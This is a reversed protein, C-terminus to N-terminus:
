PIGQSSKVLSSRSSDGSEEVPRSCKNDKKGISTRKRLCPWIFLKCSSAMMIILLVICGVFLAVTMDLKYAAPAETSHARAPTTSTASTPGPAPMSTSNRPPSLSATSSSPPQVWDDHCIADATGSGPTKVGREGCNTWKVCEGASTFHGDPCRKCTNGEKNLVHGAECKCTEKMPDDSVFGEHCECKADAKDTCQSVERSGSKINCVSCTICNYSTTHNPQYQGKPCKECNDKTYVKRYGPSCTRSATIGHFLGIFLLCCVPLLAPRHRSTHM